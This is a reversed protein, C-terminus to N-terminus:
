KRIYYFRIAKLRESHGQISHISFGNGKGLDM